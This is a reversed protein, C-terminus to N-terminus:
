SSASALAALKKEILPLRLRLGYRELRKKIASYRIRADEVQGRAALVDALIEMCHAEQAPMPMAVFLEHAEEALASPDPTTTSPPLKSALRLLAEATPRPAGMAELARRFEQEVSTIAAPDDGRRVMAVIKNELLRAREKLFERSAAVPEVEAILALGDELRDAALLYEVQARGTEPLLDPLEERALSTAQEALEIASSLRGPLLALMAARYWLIRLVFWSPIEVEPEARFVREMEDLLAVGQELEASIDYIPSAELAIAAFDECLDFCHGDQKLAIKEKLASALLALALAPDGKASVLAPIGATAGSLSYYYDSIEVEGQVLWCDAIVGIPFGYSNLLLHSEGFAALAKPFNGTMQFIMGLEILFLARGFSESFKLYKGFGLKFPDSDWNGRYRDVILKRRFIHLGTDPDLGYRKLMELSESSFKLNGFIPFSLNALSRANAPLTDGLNILDIESVVRNLWFFAQLLRGQSMFLNAMQYYASIKYFQVEKGVAEGHEFKSDSKGRDVESKIGYLTHESSHVNLENSHALSPLRPPKKHNNEIFILADLAKRAVSIADDLRESLRLEDALLLSIKARELPSEARKLQRQLRPIRESEKAEGLTVTMGGRLILFTARFSFADPASERLQRVASEDDLWLIVPGGKLLKERHWNLAELAGAADHGLTLSLIRDPREAQETLVALMDDSSSAEVPESLQPFQERLNALALPRLAPPCVVLLFAPGGLLAVARRLQEKDAQLLLSPHNPM